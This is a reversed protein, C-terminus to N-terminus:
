KHHCPITNFLSFNVKKTVSLESKVQDIDERMKLLEDVLNINLSKIESKFSVLLAVVNPKNLKNMLEESEENLAAITFETLSYNLITM